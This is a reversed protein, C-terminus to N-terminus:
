ALEDVHFLHEQTEVGRLIAEERDILQLLTHALDQSHHSCPRLVPVIEDVLQVGVVVALYVVSLEDGRSDVSSAQQVLLVQPDREIHKVLVSIALDALFLESCNEVTGGLLCSQLIAILLKPVCYHCLHVLVIIVMDAVALEVCGHLLHDPQAGAVKILLSITCSLIGAGSEDRVFSLFNYM